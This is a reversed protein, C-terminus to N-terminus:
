ALCICLHSALLCSPSSPRTVVGDEGEKEGERKRKAKSLGAQQIQALESPQNTDDRPENFLENDM